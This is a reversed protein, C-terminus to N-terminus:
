WQQFATVPILAGVVFLYAATLWQITTAGVQFENMLVPLANGLLTENLTAVFAGMMLAVMIPTRKVNQLHFNM